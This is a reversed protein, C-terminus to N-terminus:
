RSFTEANIELPNCNNNMVHGSFKVLMGGGVSLTFGDNIRGSVNRVIIDVNDDHHMSVYVDYFENNATFKKETYVVRGGFNDIYQGQQINDCVVEFKALEKEATPPLTRPGCASLLLVLIFAIRKM